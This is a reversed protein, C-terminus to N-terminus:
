EDEDQNNEENWENFIKEVLEWEDEEIPKLSDDENLKAGYVVDDIEYLIFQDGNEEFTFVINANVKKGDNLEVEIINNKLKEKNNM